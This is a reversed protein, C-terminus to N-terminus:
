NWLDPSYHVYLEVWNYPHSIIVCGYAQTHKFGYRVRGVFFGVFYNKKLLDKLYTDIATVIFDNKSQKYPLQKLAKDIRQETNYDLSTAM